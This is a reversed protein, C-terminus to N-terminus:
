HGPAAATLPEPLQPRTGWHWVSATAVRSFRWGHETRVVDFGYVGGLIFTVKPALLPPITSDSDTTSDADPANDPAAYLVVNARVKGRDGDLDVLVNTIVHEHGWQPEHNRRAQAVVADRGVAAGGPTQATAEGALLSRMDDFRGEDLCVGLRSVLDTIENHDLVQQLTADVTTRNM